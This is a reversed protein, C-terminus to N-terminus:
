DGELEARLREGAATDDYVIALKCGVLRITRATGSGEFDILGQAYLIQLHIQVGRPSALGFLRMLDRISPPSGTSLLTSAIARLIQRRREAGTPGGVPRGRRRPTQTKTSM